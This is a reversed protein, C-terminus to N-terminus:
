SPKQNIQDLNKLGNQVLSSQSILYVAFRNLINFPFYVPRIFDVFLVVRIQESDNWARHEFSDDFVLSQKDTWHRIQSDVEIGCLSPDDPLILPLHYRLVGNFPGRHIPIRKKPSMISFMATKLGPIQNLASVTRPCLDCNENVQNGYVYLFFTKWKDDKTITTQEESVDQFNPIFQSELVQNLESQIDPLHSEIRKVWPFQDNCFFASRGKISFYRNFISSAKIILLYFILLLKKM